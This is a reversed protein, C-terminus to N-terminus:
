NKVMQYVFKPCLKQKLLSSDSSFADLGQLVCSVVWELGSSTDQTETGGEAQSFFIPLLWPRLKAM